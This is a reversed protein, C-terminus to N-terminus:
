TVDACAGCADGDPGGGRRRPHAGPGVGHGPLFGLSWGLVTGRQLRWAPAGATALRGEAPGPRTPLFSM